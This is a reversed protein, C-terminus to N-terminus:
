EILFPVEFVRFPVQWSAPEKHKTNSILAQELVGM